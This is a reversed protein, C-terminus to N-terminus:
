ICRFKAPFLKMKPHMFRSITGLVKDCFKYASFKQFADGDSNWPFCSRKQVYLNHFQVWFKKQLDQLYFSGFHTQVECCVAINRSAYIMFIRGSSIEYVEYPSFERFADSSLLLCSWKQICFDMIHAWIKECLKCPFFKWFVDSSWLLIRRKRVCLDHFHVWFMKIFKSTSFKGVADSSNKMAWQQIDMSNGPFPKFRSFTDWVDKLFYCFNTNHFKRWHLFNCGFKCTGIKLIKAPQHGFFTGTKQRSLPFV